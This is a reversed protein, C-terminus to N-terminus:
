LVFLSPVSSYAYGGGPAQLICRSTWACRQSSFIVRVEGQPFHTGEHAIGILDASSTLDVFGTPALHCAHDGTSLRVLSFLQLRRNTRSVALMNALRVLPSAREMLRSTTVMTQSGRLLGARRDISRAYQLSHVNADGARLLQLQEPLHSRLLDVLCSARCRLSACM